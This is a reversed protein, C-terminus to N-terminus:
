LLKLDSRKNSFEDLNIKTLREIIPIIIELSIYQNFMNQYFFLWNYKKCKRLTNLPLFYDIFSLKFHIKEKEKSCEEDNKKEFYNNNLMFFDNKKSKFSDKRGIKCNLINMSTNKGKIIIKNNMNSNFNKGHISKEYRDALIIHNIIDIIMNKKSFYTNIFQFIILVLDIFGGINRMVDQIKLYTRTYINKRDNCTLSVELLAKQSYYEQDEEQIFDLRTNESEYFVIKKKNKFFLGNDSIYEALSFYHYYRKTNGKAVVYLENRVFQNIPNLYNNHDVSQSLFIIELYSNKIYDNIEEDSKCNFSSNECKNLHIELIDYGNINDGFRGAISLNQGQEPCLLKNYDFDNMFTNKGVYHIKPNCAELKIPTSIREMAYFGEENIFTNHVNRDFTLSLYSSNLIQHTRSWNVFGIMFPIKALDISTKKIIPSYNLMVNFGSHHILELSYMIIIVIVIMYTVLSLIIGSITSYKQSNRYHLNFPLGYINISRLFTDSKIKLM